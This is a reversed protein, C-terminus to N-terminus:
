DNGKEIGVDVFDGHCRANIVTKFFGSIVAVVKMTGKRLFSEMVGILHSGIVMDM